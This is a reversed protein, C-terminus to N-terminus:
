FFHRSGFPFEEFGAERRHSQHAPTLVEFGRVVRLELLVVM